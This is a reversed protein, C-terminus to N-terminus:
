FLTMRLLLGRMDLVEMTVAAVVLHAIFVAQILLPVAPAASAQLTAAAVVYATKMM